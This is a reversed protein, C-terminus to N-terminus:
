KFFYLLTKSFSIEDLDQKQIEKELGYLYIDYLYISLFTSKICSWRSM